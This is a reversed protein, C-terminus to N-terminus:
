VKKHRGYGRKALELKAIMGKHVEDPGDALRLSRAQAFFGTLPTDRSVGAGGHLQIAMDVVKELVSPAVVKIASIETLAAMNGLTDMKYAAYLTLLRAQDIAVRADAVRELNGGLKLIEKGFATRSMGRDIMLELAKEAAGICRMCHHIRGPGLRGQAIEFGQGAGGIFNELPVRVNKFHVEGHGHPADYDGFVPLMRQIEVGATDIPVLVMSHQHHRDKTEDPTHAMFIIVKANPDGLGSSWWKKGNLVIENGEILATAQMNTADSSAVDPETMCFVSRIKGDLLPQLWQQKQQESGYRWLVEMNGTDPANCNFVTPALLSRGTLEAIHAYEQVTLGAGLKEDPLFMNWLGAQKAKSKLTELLDPWQWKKWNGDPNLEHVEEWFKAEVPEIEELIFKKTREAFDQAKKSLEFM